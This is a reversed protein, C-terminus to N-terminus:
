DGAMVKSIGKLLMEPTYFRMAQDRAWAMAPQNVFMYRALERSNKQATEVRRRQRKVYLDFAYEIHAADARSLEDALAAASDLAASAGVGATPLFAAAADGLLVTHGRHWVKARCDALKWYFGSASRDRSKLADLFPGKPLRSELELAYSEPDRKSLVDHRGGLFMGTRGPVPYLGIGWGSSWLERYTDAQSEDLASWSVFGGWGLDFDEVEQASLIMKRTHSHIGDAAVIVHFSTQSGDHFTVTVASPGESIEQITARYEIPGAAARLIELLPGREIGRWAGFREVLPSLSYNRIFRGRRDHLIYTSMPLSNKLYTDALGLGNLVRGGLPLIGLMYGGSGHAEGREIIAASEGRRRLIAGLAAGAIGAGVILVRLRADRIQADMRSAVTEMDVCDGGAAVCLLM